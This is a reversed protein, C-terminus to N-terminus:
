KNYPVQSPNLHDTGTQGQTQAVTLLNNIKEISL